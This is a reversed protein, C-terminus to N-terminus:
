PFVKGHGVSWSYCPDAHGNMFFWLPRMIEGDFLIGDRHHCIPSSNESQSINAGLCRHRDHFAFGAQHFGQAPQRADGDEDVGLVDRGDDLVALDDLGEDVPVGGSYVDGSRKKAEKETMISHRIKARMEPNALRKKMEASGGEQVWDPVLTTLGSASYKYPPVDCAVDIGEARAEDLSRLVEETQGWAPYHSEIHSIQVSVGSDRGIEIAEQVSEKYKMVSDRMHTAYIGHYKAVVKCLEKIEETNSFFGPAYILGTSLGFAGEKM